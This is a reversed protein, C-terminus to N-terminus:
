STFYAKVIALLQMKNMDTRNNGYLMFNEVSDEAKVPLDVQGPVGAAHGIEHLLTVSDASKNAANIFVFPLWETGTFTQGNIGHEDKGNISGYVTSIVPLRAKDDKQKDQFAKHAAMRVAQVDEMDQVPREFDVPGKELVDLNLGHQQLLAKAKAVYDNFPDGSVNKTTFHTIRVTAGGPHKYNHIADWGPPNPARQVAKGPGAAQQVVHALEHALLTKGANTQPQYEGSAFVIDTGHTYAKARLDRASEAAPADTHLRVGSFDYGFKSEYFNQESEALSQGGSLSRLYNETTATAESAAAGEKRQVAPEDECETCKRLVSKSPPKFFTNASVPQQSRMVSDAVAGTEHGHESTPQNVMFKHQLAPKFFLANNTKSSLVNQPNITKLLIQM